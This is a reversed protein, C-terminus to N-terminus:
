INKRDPLNACWANYIDRKFKDNLENKHNAIQKSCKKDDTSSEKTTEM